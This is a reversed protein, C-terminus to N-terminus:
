ESKVPHEVTNGQSVKFKGIVKEGNVDYLPIFRDSGPVISRQKSLAEEPTKPMETNLDESRVYGLTGDVGYAEILDPETDPSTADLGSGYTQGNKNKQFGPSHDQNIFASAIEDGIKYTGIVVGIVFVFGIIVIKTSTSILRM